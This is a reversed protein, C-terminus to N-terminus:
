LDSTALLEDIDEPVSWALRTGTSMTRSLTSRRHMAYRLCAGACSGRLRYSRLWRHRGDSRKSRWSEARPGAFGAWGESRFQADMQRLGIQWELMGLLVYEAIASEHEFTNAVPVGSPM